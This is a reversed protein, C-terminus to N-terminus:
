VVEKALEIWHLVEEPDPANSDNIIRRTEPKEFHAKAADFLEGARAAAVDDISRFGAGVLLQVDHVRLSPMAMKLATQDQWDLVTEATIHRVDLAEAAQAIPCSRHLKSSWRYCADKRLKAHAQENSTACTCAFMQHTTSKIM